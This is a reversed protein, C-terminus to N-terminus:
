PGVKPVPQLLNPFDALTLYENIRLCLSVPLKPVERRHLKRKQVAKLSELRSISSCQVMDSLKKDSIRVRMGREFQWADGDEYIRCASAHGRAIVIFKGTDISTIRAQATLTMDFPTLLVNADAKAWLPGDRDYPVKVGLLRLADIM